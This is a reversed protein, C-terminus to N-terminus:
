YTLPTLAMVVMCMAVILIVFFVWATGDMKKLLAM